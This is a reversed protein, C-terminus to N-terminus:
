DKGPRQSEENTEMRREWREALGRETGAVLPAAAKLNLFIEVCCRSDPTVVVVVEYIGEGNNNNGNENVDM